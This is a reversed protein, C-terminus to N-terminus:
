KERRMAIWSYIAGATLKLSSNIKNTKLTVNREIDASSTSNYSAIGHTRAISSSSNYYMCMGASSPSTGTAAQVNNHQTVAVVSNSTTTGSYTSDLDRILVFAEVAPQRGTGKYGLYITYESIDETPVFSGYTITTFKGFQVGGAEIADILAAMGDLLTGSPVTVGKGEIATQIAAKANTLRALETQISM